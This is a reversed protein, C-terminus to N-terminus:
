LIIEGHLINPTILTSFRFDLQMHKFIPWQHKCFTQKFNHLINYGMCSTAPHIINIVQRDTQWNMVGTKIGYGTIPPVHIYHNPSMWRDTRGDTLGTNKYVRVARRKIFSSCLNERFKTPFSPCLTYIVLHTLFEKIQLSNHSEKEKVKPWKKFITSFLKYTCSRKSWQM